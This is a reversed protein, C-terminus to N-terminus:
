FFYKSLNIIYVGLLGHIFVVDLRPQNKRRSRPHLPYVKPAYIFSNPDDTDLNSLALASTVQVRMDLDLQWKALIGIWGTVFFDYVYQSCVSINAIVRSLCLKMEINDKYLKEIEILTLLGGSEVIKECISKNTTLHLLADILQKMLDTEYTGM